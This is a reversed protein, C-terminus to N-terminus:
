TGSAEPPPPHSKARTRPRKTKRTKSLGLQPLRPRDPWPHRADFLLVYFLQYAFDSLTRATARYWKIEALADKGELKRARPHGLFVHPQVSYATSSFSLIFPSHIADNRGDALSQARDLLWLADALAKPHASKYTVTDFTVQAAAKLMERQARDSQSSHWIKYGLLVDDKSGIAASFLLSLYDQLRNWELALKGIELAFPRFM